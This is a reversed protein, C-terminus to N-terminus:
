HGSVYEWWEPKCGPSSCYEPLYGTVVPISMYLLTPLQGGDIPVLTRVIPIGMSPDRQLMWCGSIDATHTVTDIPPRIWHWTSGMSDLPSPRHKGVMGSPGLLSLWASFTGRLWWSVALLADCPHMMSALVGKLQWLVCGNEYGSILSMESLENMKRHTPTLPNELTTAVNLWTPPDKLRNIAM